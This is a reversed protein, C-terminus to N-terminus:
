LFFSEFCVKEEERYVIMPGDLNIVIRSLLSLLARRVDKEKEKGEPFLKSSM